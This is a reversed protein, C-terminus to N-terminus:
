PATERELHLREFVRRELERRAEDTIPRVFFRQNGRGDRRAPFSITYAGSSTRRLCIGDLVIADNIVLRIWGVLGTRADAESAETFRVDSVAVRDPM